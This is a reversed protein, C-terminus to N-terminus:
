SLREVQGFDLEVPTERGFISILVRVKERDPAVEDVVGHFDQFPGHIVRVPQGVKLDVKVRTPAEMGMLQKIRKVEDAPLPVPKAGPSVFGTVGSTNRVVYWSDETMIMEVFVYGPYIKKQVTKKKGDKFELEEETPVLVQFIKDKMNMSEIRRLLNDKVKNEYGSYTHIVYWYTRPDRPEDTTIVGRVVPESAPEDRDASEQEPIETTETEGM